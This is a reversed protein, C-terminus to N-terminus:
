DHRIIERTSEIFALQVDRQNLYLVIVVSLVMASFQPEAWIYGYLAQGMNTGAWLITAVWAWRQLRWLGVSVILGVAGIFPGAMEFYFGTRMVDDLSVDGMWTRVAAIGANAIMAIAIVTVGFPRENVREIQPQAAAHSVFGKSGM